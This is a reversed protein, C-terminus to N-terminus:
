GEPTQRSVKTICLGPATGGAAPAAGARGSRGGGTRALRDHDSYISSVGSNSVASWDILTWEILDQLLGQANQYPVFWRLVRAITPMYAIVAEKDGLFRYMNYVGHVWHLAWDPVSPL